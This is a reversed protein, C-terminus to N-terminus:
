KGDERFNIGKSKMDAKIAKDLERMGHPGIGWFINPQRYTGQKSIHKSGVLGMAVRPVKKFGM